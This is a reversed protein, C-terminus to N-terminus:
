GYGPNSSVPPTLLHPAFNLAMFRWTAEIDDLRQIGIWLSKTGPEGDGKRGLFGGLSAVMRVAERLTPPEKPPTPQQHVFCYLSKWQSDEFFVTCPVEPTERGLKTLHFIRWAVVMDIALCAELRDANGLQREEIQCGSKLTRHYVEIGWRRTYWLLKEAADNFSELAVTTLLMWKLPDVGKPADIEEALIAWIKLEGLNRRRQPPKLRVEKFRVELRAVRPARNARRPVSLVQTGALPAQAMQKWLHGQGDALLRDQEARVLLQAGAGERVALAFLEYIDAERDGVSVLTTQPCHKKAAIVKRLAKLWKESEKEEIPLEHRLHKKGYAKPDRAWCQVDVLGLPTGELNFAMSDHLMLGIVGKPRSGIPGLGETLPHASYNLTTTDQAILVLKQESMRKLTAEYHAALLNDMTTDPHDFFRYAAKTKARSHCAEPLSAQPRDYLDRAILLLRRKLRQDNLKAAGFEEKAWDQNLEHQQPKLHPTPVASLIEKVDARLPYLYIDKPPLSFSKTRDQRGRGCSKGVYQWNAARYSTGLFRGREVFSELLVPEYRYREPWDARLRKASQALVHSALHPVKVWPLILFRSNSIVKQLHTKRAQDSWGIWQDRAKVRWAAASFALAGLWQHSASRIVYRLQAGCLPGSGLYHYRDMFENWLRATKSDAGGVPLLEIPMLERLGCEIPAPITTAEGWERRKRPPAPHSAARLRIVGRRHLKLLASRCSMEKYKGNPCRWNMWGCVRRSLAVRSLGPESDITEQIRAILEPPFRQGCVVV